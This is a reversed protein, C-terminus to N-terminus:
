SKFTLHCISAPRAVYQRQSLKTRSVLHLPQPYSLIFRLNGYYQWM